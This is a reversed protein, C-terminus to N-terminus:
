VVLFDRQAWGTRREWSTGGYFGGSAELSAEWVNGTRRAERSM